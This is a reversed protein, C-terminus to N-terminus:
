KSAPQWATEVWRVSKVSVVGNIPQETGLQLPMVGIEVLPGRAGGEGRYLHLVLSNGSRASSMALLPEAPTSLSTITGEPSRIQAKEGNPLGLELTFVSRGARAPEHASGNGSATARHTVLFPVALGLAVVLAAFAAVIGGRLWPRGGLSGPRPEVASRPRSADSQRQAERGESTQLWAAIEERSAIVVSSKPTALRHVPLGLSREWRQATRDSTHLFDGIEKWGKLRDDPEM